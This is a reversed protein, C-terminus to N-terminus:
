LISKAYGILHNIQKYARNIHINMLKAKCENGNVVIFYLALANTKM